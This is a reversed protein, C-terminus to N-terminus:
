GKASSIDDLKDPDPVWSTEPGEDFTPAYNTTTCRVSYASNSMETIISGSTAYLDADGEAILKLNEQAVKVLDKGREILDKQGRSLWQWSYGEAIRETLTRVLPPISAATQFTDTSLDFRKSLYKNVESEAHDMAKSVLSSTATNFTVGVMVTQLATSTAYTGV